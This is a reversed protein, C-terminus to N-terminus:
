RILTINGKKFNEQGEVCEYRFYYDYVAPDIRMGEYTGDWGIHQNEAEFVKQGWRNYIAFYMKIINKGRVLLIDNEGDGNPTFANPVYIYPDDCIFYLVEVAVQRKASCQLLLRDVVEVTYKTSVPPRVVFENDDQTDNIGFPTISYKNGIPFAEILASETNLITDPSIQAFVSDRNLSGFHLSIQDTDHCNYKNTSLVTVNWTGPDGYVLVTSLSTDSHIIESPTWVYSVVDMGTTDTLSRLEITDGFCLSSDPLYNLNYISSVIRLSTTDLCGIDDKGEIYFSSLGEPPIFSYDKLAVGEQITDSFLDNTSWIYNLTDNGTIKALYPLTNNCLITDSQGNIDIKNVFVNQEITDICYSNNVILSLLVSDTLYAKTQISDKDLVVDPFWEYTFLPNYSLAFGLSTTDGFCVTTDKLNVDLKNDILRLTDMDFCGNTDSAYVVYDNFYTHISLLAVVSDSGSIVFSAPSWSVSDLSGLDDIILERSIPDLSCVISDLGADIEIQNVNIKQPIVVTCYASTVTLNLQISDTFIAKTYLNNKDIVVNPSWEYSHTPDIIIAAGLTITDAKCVATDTLTLNITENQVKISDIDICGFTDRAYVQFSSNVAYLGLLASTSDAGQIVNSGLSWSISDIYNASYATLDRWIPDATCVVTDLDLDVQFDIGTVPLSDVFECTNADQVLVYFVTDGVQVPYRFSTDSFAANLTDSFLSSSSWHYKNINTSSKVFNSITDGFCAITDSLELLHEPVFVPNLITDLCGPLSKVILRLVTSSDVNAKPMYASSDSYVGIPFEWSYEASSPFSTVLAIQLSDGSCITDMKTEFLTDTRLKFLKTISDSVFCSTPDTVVLKVQYSGATTFKHTPHKETSQTGDGFDWLFTTSNLVNSRNLFYYGTDICGQDPLIFDAVISPMEFNFKVVGNNCGTSNNTASVANVPRIPLDSNGQCGACMSQYLIGKNDFRSTGGDVHEPSLNGGFYTAYHLASADDELVMFYFDDSVTTTQFAGPTTPYGVVRGHGSLYVKNCLDVMFATPSIGIRFDSGGFMTSWIITDVTSNFKTLIGSSNSNAFAANKVYSSGFKFSQGYLYVFGKRDERIFYIQDYQDTGYYSGEILSKGDKSIKAFFGEVSAYYTGGNAFTAKNSYTKQFANSTDIPLNASRTGGAVYINSDNSVIVSYIGDDESGGFYTSWILTNLKDNMKLIVGDQEGELTPQFAGPTIPIDSSFTSTAVVVNGELDLIIEGRMEDAYNVDLSDNIGDNGTGGFYTSALLATGDVNLKTVFIDTGGEYNVFIGNRHDSGVGGAFTSDYAGVTIPYDPSGTTGFIFLEDQENVILSHPLESNQGGIYTSYLMVTGSTDYKSIAVDSVGWNGTPANSNFTLDFAGLSTPYGVGFVSGGAYLFGFRDYTATYGFNNAFSGSYSSFEVFPDIVLTDNVDYADIIVYSVVDDKLQYSSRIVNGVSDQYVLPAKDTVVNLSTKILLDGRSLELGSSGEIEYKIIAPDVGPQVIFEYKLRGGVAFVNLDIGDYLNQYSVQSGGKLGRAWNVRDAGLYYNYLGEKTDKLTVPVNKKQGLFKLKFAHCHLISDKKGEHRNHFFDDDYFSFTIGDEEIFTAGSSIDCKYLIRDNWQGSNPIFLENNQAVACSIGMPFLLLFLILYLRGLM